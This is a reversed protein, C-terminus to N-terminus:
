RRKGKFATAAFVVPSAQIAATVSEEDDSWMRALFSAPSSLDSRSQSSSRSIWPLSTSLPSEPRSFLRLSGVWFEEPGRPQPPSRQASSANLFPQALSPSPVGRRHLPGARSGGCDSYVSDAM